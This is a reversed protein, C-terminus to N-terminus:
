SIGAQPEQFNSFHVGVPNTYVHIVNQILSQRCRTYKQESHSVSFVIQVTFETQLASVRLLLKLQRKNLYIWRVSLETIHFQHCDSFILCDRRSSPPTGKLLSPQKPSCFLIYMTISVCVLCYFPVTSFTNCAEYVGLIHKCSIMNTCM